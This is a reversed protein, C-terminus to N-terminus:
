CSTRGTGAVCNLSECDSWNVRQALWVERLKEFEKKMLVLAKIHAAGAKRLEDVAPHNRAATGLFRLLAALAVEPEAPSRSMDAVKKKSSHEKM